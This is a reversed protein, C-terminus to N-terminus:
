LESQVEKKRRILRYTQVLLLAGVMATTASSFIKEFRTLEWVKGCSFRYFVLCANLLMFLGLIVSLINLIKKM